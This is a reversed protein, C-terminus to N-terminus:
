DEGVSSLRHPAVVNSKSSNRREVEELNLVDFVRCHRIESVDNRTDFGFRHATQARAEAGQVDAVFDDLDVTLDHHTSCTRVNTVDKEGRRPLDAPVRRM